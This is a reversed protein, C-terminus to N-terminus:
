GLDGAKPATSQALERPPDPREGALALLAVAVLLQMRQDGWAEPCGRLLKEALAAAQDTSFWPTLPKPEEGAPGELARFRHKGGGEMIVLTESGPSQISPKAWLVLAPAPAASM